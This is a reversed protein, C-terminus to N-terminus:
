NKLDLNIIKECSKKRFYKLILEKSNDTYKSKIILCELIETNNIQHNLNFYAYGIYKNDKILIVSKESVTRGKDIILMNPYKFSNDKVFLDIQINNKLNNETIGYINKLSELRKNAVKLSSFTEIYDEFENFHVIRLFKNRLNDECIELGFKKVSKKLLRNFKPKHKKIEENEKLIAILENGTRESSLDDIELQINISKTSKGTFHQSVRNKINKSKGIYIIKGNIDYFYYIGIENSLSQILKQWKNVIKKEKHIISNSLIEKNLDKSLLLKFLELTALADGSARHRNSIPIGLNKVLNGLKYSELDPILKKSLKVTCLQPINFNYGLREFEIKIMRYDFSSNHAVLISDETIELIRKAIQFFKPANILMKDNIGTLQQVYPQIPIEPNILSIFQDIIKEGDFKYIAIETIGEQNYKGGTTEVDIISYM